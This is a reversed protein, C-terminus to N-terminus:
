ASTLRVWIISSFGDDRVNLDTVTYLWTDGRRTRYIVKGGECQHMLHMMARQTHPDNPDM